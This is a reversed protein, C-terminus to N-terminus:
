WQQEGPHLFWETFWWRNQFYIMLESSASNREDFSQPFCWLYPPSNTPGCEWVCFAFRPPTSVKRNRCYEVCKALKKGVAPNQGPPSEKWLDLSLLENTSMIALNTPSLSEIFTYAAAIENSYAATSDIHHQYNTAFAYSVDITFTGNSLVGDMPLDIGLRSTAAFDSFPQWFGSLRLHNTPGSGFHYLGLEVVSPTLCRQFDERIVDRTGEPIGNNFNLVVANTSSLPYHYYDDASLCFAIAGFLFLAINRKVNM